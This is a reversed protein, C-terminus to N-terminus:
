KLCNLIIERHSEVYNIISNDKAGKMVKKKFERYNMVAKYIAQYVDKEKFSKRASNFNYKNQSPILICGEGCIDKIGGTDSGINVIGRAYSEVVANPCPDQDRLHLRIHVNEYLKNLQDYKYGNLFSTQFYLFNTNIIKLKEILYHKDEINKFVIKIHFKNETDISIQKLASFVLAINEKDENRRAFDIETLFNFYKENPFSTKFQDCDKDPPNVLITYNNRSKGCLIEFSDLCFLSQFITHDSTLHAIYLLKNKIWYDNKKYWSKYYLGNSNFIFIKRQNFIRNLLSKFLYLIILYYSYSSNLYCVNYFIEFNPMLGQLKATRLKPGNLNEIKEKKLYDNFYNICIPYLLNSRSYPRIFGKLIKKLYIKDVISSFEFISNIKKNKEFYRIIQLLPNEQNYNKLFKPLFLENIKKSIYLQENYNNKSIRKSNDIEIVDFTNTYGYQDEKILNAKIIKALLVYDQAKGWWKQNEFYDGYNLNNNKLIRLNLTLSPHPTINRVKMLNSWILYNTPAIFIRLDFPFRLYNSLIILKGKKIQRKINKIRWPLMLCDGDHRTIFETKAKSIIFALAKTIGINAKSETVIIRPDFNAIFRIKKKTNESSGDLYVHILDNRKIAFLCSLLSLQPFPSDKIPLAITISDIM